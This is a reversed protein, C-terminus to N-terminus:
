ICYLNLNAADLKFDFLEVIHMMNSILCFGYSMNCSKALEYGFKQAYFFTFQKSNTGYSRNYSRNYLYLLMYALEKPSFEYYLHADDPPREPPNGTRLPGTGISVSWGRRGRAGAEEKAFPAPDCPLHWLIQGRGLSIDGEALSTPRGQGDRTEKVTPTGSCM